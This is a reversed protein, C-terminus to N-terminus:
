WRSRVGAVREARRAGAGGGSAFSSRWVNAPYLVPMQHGVMAQESDSAVSSSKASPDDGLVVLVGGHPHTGTYNGHKFAAKDLRHQTLLLRVLAQPGSILSPRHTAAYNDDLSAYRLSPPQM